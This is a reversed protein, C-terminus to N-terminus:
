RKMFTMRYPYIHQLLRFVPTLLINIQRLLNMVSVLTHKPYINCSHIHLHFQHLNWFLYQLLTSVEYSGHINRYLIPPVIM